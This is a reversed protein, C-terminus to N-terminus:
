GMNKSSRATHRENGYRGLNFLVEIFFKRFNNNMRVVNVIHVTLTPEEARIREAAEVGPIGVLHAWRKVDLPPANVERVEFNKEEHPRPEMREFKVEQEVNEIDENKSEMPSSSFIPSVHSKKEKKDWFWFSDVCYFSFAFIILILFKVLSM